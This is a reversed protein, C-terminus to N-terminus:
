IMWFLEFEVFLCIILLYVDYTPIWRNGEVITDVDIEILMPEELLNLMGTFISSVCQVMDLFYLNDFQNIQSM